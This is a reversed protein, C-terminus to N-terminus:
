VELSRSLTWAVLLVSYNRINLDGLLLGILIDKQEQDLSFLEKESKTLRKPKDDGPKVPVLSLLLLSIEELGISSETFLFNNLLVSFISLGSGISQIYMVNFLLAGAGLLVIAFLPSIRLSSLLKALINIIILTKVM